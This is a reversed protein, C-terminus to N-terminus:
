NLFDQIFSDLIMLDNLDYVKESLETIKERAREKTDRDSTNQFTREYNAIEKALKKLEKKTM